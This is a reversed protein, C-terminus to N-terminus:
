EGTKGVGKVKVRQRRKYEKVRSIFRHRSKTIRTQETNRYQPGALRATLMGVRTRM